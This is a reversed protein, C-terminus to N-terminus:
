LPKWGEGAPWKLNDKEKWFGDEDEAASDGGAEEGSSPMLGEQDERGRSSDRM